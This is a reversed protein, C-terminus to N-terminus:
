LVRRNGNKRVLRLEYGMLNAIKEVKKFLTNPSNIFSWVYQPSVEFIEREIYAIPYQSGLLEDKMQDLVKSM